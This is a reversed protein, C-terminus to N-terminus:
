LGLSLFLGQFEKPLQPFPLPFLVPRPQSCSRTWIKGRQPRSPSALLTRVEVADDTLHSGPVLKTRMEPFVLHPVQFATSLTSLFSQGEQLTKREVKKKTKKEKRFELHSWKKALCATEGLRSNAWRYLPYLLLFSKCTSHPSWHFTQLQQMSPPCPRVQWLPKQRKVASTASPRLYVREEGAVDPCHEAKPLTLTFAYPAFLLGGMPLPECVLPQRMGEKM